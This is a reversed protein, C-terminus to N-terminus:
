NTSVFIFALQTAAKQKKSSRLYGLSAGFCGSDFEAPFSTKAFNEANIFFGLFSAFSLLHQLGTTLGPLSLGSRHMQLVSSSIEWKWSLSKGSRRPQPFRHRNGGKTLSEWSQHFCISSDGHSCWNWGRRMGEARPDTLSCRGWLKALLVARQSHSIGYKWLYQPSWGRPM